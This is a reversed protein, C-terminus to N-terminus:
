AQSGYRWKRRGQLGIFSVNRNSKELRAHGTRGRHMEIVNCAGDDSVRMAVSLTENHSRIFLQRRKELEFRRNSSVPITSSSHAAKEFSPLMFGEFTATEKSNKVIDNSSRPPQSPIGSLLVGAKTGLGCGPAGIGPPKRM